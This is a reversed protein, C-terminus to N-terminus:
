KYILTPQKPYEQLSNISFATELCGDRGIAVVSGLHYTCCHLVVICFYFYFDVVFFLSTSLLMQHIKFSQTKLLVKKQDFHSM